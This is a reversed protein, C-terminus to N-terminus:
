EVALNRRRAPSRIVRRLTKATSALFLKLSKGIILPAKEDGVIDSTQLLM